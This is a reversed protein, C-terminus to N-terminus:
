HTLFVFDLSLVEFFNVYLNLFAIRRTVIKNEFQEAIPCSNEKLIFTMGLIQPFRKSLVKETMKLIGFM